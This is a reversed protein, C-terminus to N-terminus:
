YRILHVEILTNVSIFLSIECYFLSNLEEPLYLLLLHKICRKVSIWSLSCIQCLLLSFKVSRCDFSHIKVSKKWYIFFLVFVLLSIFSKFFKKNVVKLQNINISCQVKRNYLICKKKLHLYVLAQALLFSVIYKIPSFDYLTHERIM